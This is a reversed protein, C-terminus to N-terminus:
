SWLSSLIMQSKTDPRLGLALFYSKWFLIMSLLTACHRWSTEWYWPWYIGRSCHTILYTSHGRNGFSNGIQFTILASEKKSFFRTKLTPWLTPLSFKQTYVFSCSSHDKISSGARVCLQHNISKGKSCNNGGLMGQGKSHQRTRSWRTVTVLLLGLSLADLREKRSLKWLWSRYFHINCTSFSKWLSHFAHRSFLMRLSIM